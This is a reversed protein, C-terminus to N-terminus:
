SRQKGIAQGVKIDLIRSYPPFVILLPLKINKTQKIERLILFNWLFFIRAISVQQPLDHVSNIPVNLVYLRDTWQPLQVSGMKSVVSELFLFSSKSCRCVRVTDLYEIIAFKQPWRFHVIYALLPTITCRFARQRHCLACDVIIVYQLLVFHLAM